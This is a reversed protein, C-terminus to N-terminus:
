YPSCRGAVWLDPNSVVLHFSFCNPLICVINFFFFIRTMRVPFKVCDGYWAPRKQFEKGSLVGCLFSHCVWDVFYFVNLHIQNASFHRIGLIKQEFLAVQPLLCARHGALHLHWQSLKHRKWCARVFSNVYNTCINQIQTLKRNKFGNKNDPSSEAVRGVTVWRCFVGSLRWPCGWLISCLNFPSCQRCYPLFSPHWSVSSM